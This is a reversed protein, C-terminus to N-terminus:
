GAPNDLNVPREAPQTPPQSSVDVVPTSQPTKAEQTPAHGALALARAGVLEALARQLDQQLRQRFEKFTEGGTQGYITYTYGEHITKGIITMEPEWSDLMQWHGQQCQYLEFVIRVEGHVGQLRLDLAIPLIASRQNVKRLFGKALSSAAPRVQRSLKEPPLSASKRALRDLRRIIGKSALMQSRAVRGYMDYQSMRLAVVHWGSMPLSDMGLLLKRAHIASENCFGPLSGNQAHQQWMQRRGAITDPNLPPMNAYPPQWTGFIPPRQFLLRVILWFIWLLILLVAVVGVLLAVDRPNSRDIQIGIVPITLISPATEVTLTAVPPPAPTGPIQATVPESRILTTGSLIEIQLPHRSGAPYKGVPFSLTLGQQQQAKLPPLSRSDLNENSSPDLLRVITDEHADSGKNTVTFDINIRTGDASLSGSSTVTIEYDAGQAYVPLAAWLLLVIVRVMMRLM